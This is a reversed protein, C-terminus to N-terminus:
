SFKSAYAIHAVCVRWFVVKIKLNFIETWYCLFLITQYYNYAKWDLMPFTRNLSSVFYHFVCLFMNKTSCVNQIPTRQFRRTVSKFNALLHPNTLICVAQLEQSCLVQVLTNSPRSPHSPVPWECDLDLGVGNSLEVWKISKYM